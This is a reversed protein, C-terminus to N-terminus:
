RRRKILEAVTEVHATHPFMDVPQVKTLMYGSKTLKEVDRALTAPNCSVYIIKQIGSEGLANVVHKHMGARPPDIIIQDIRCDKIIAKLTRLEKEVAGSIFEINNINNLKANEKADAIASENIEIGYVYKCKQALYIGIAGTGCYLDIIKERGTLHAFNAIKEYLKEASLTNTQFFSFPSIKFNVHSLKEYIFGDGWMLTAKPNHLADSLSDSETILISQMGEIKSLDQIISGFENTYHLKTQSLNNKYYKTKKSKKVNNIVLNILINDTHEARRVVLQRLLGQHTKPNYVTYKKSEIAKTFINLIKELKQSFLDCKKLPIIQEWKESAHFGISPNEDHYIRTDEKHEVWMKEFGFSLEVKNRYEWIKPSPIIPLLEFKRVKGLHQLTEQVQKQKLELQKEYSLNQWVCGGCKGFAICKPETELPSKELLEIVKAEAYNIKLKIIQVKVKQGPVAGKVFIVFDEHRAIGKGKAAIKDLIRVEYTAGKKLPIKGM